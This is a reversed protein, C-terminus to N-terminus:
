EFTPFQKPPQPIDVQLDPVHTCQAARKRKIGNEVSPCSYPPFATPMNLTKLNHCLM